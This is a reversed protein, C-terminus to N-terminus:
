SFWLNEILIELFFFKLCCFFNWYFLNLLLNWFFDMMFTWVIFHYFLAFFFIRFFNGLYIQFLFNWFSIPLFFFELSCQPVIASVYLIKFSKDMCYCHFSIEISFINSNKDLIFKFRLLFANAFLNPDFMKAWFCNQLSCWYM